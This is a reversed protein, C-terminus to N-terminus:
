ENYLVESPECFSGVTSVHGMLTEAAEGDVTFAVREVESFSETLTAVIQAILFREERDSGTLNRSSFDVTVEGASETVNNIIFEEKFATMLGEEPPLKKPKLGKIAKTYLETNGAGVIQSDALILADPSGTDFRKRDILAVKIRVRTGIGTSAVLLSIVALIILIKFFISKMPNLM